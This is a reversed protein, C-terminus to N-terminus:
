NGADIGMRLRLIDVVAAQEAEYDVESLGVAAAAIHQPCSGDPYRNLLARLSHDYRGLLIFDPDERLRRRQEPSTM